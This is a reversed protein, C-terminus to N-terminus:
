HQGYLDGQPAHAEMLGLLELALIEEVLLSVDDLADVDAQIREVVAQMHDAAADKNRGYLEAAFRMNDVLVALAVTKGVSTQEFFMGREDTTQGSYVAEIQDEVLEGDLTKYSLRGNVRLGTLGRDGIPNTLRLLLAGKNKSLFVTAV